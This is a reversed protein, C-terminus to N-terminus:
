KEIKEVQASPPIKFDEFLQPLKASRKMNKLWMKESFPYKGMGSYSETYGPVHRGEVEIYSGNIVKMITEGKRSIMEMKELRAGPGRIVNIERIVAIQAKGPVWKETVTNGQRGTRSITFGMAKLDLPKAAMDTVSVDLEQKGDKSSIIFAKEEEPYYITMGERGYTIVQNVLYTVHFYFGRMERDESNFNKIYIFGGAIDTREGDFLEKHFEFSLDEASLPAFVFALVAFFLIKKM